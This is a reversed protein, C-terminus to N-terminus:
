QLHGDVAWAERSAQEVELLGTRGLLACATIGDRGPGHRPNDCAMEECPRPVVMGLATLRFVFYTVFGLLLRVGM